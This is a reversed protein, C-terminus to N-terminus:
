IYQLIDIFIKKNNSNYNNINYISYLCASGISYLIIINKKINM